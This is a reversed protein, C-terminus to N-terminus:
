CCLIVSVKVFQIDDVFILNSGNEGMLCFRNRYMLSQIEFCHFLLVSVVAVWALEFAARM